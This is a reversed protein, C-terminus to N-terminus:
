RKLFNDGPRVFRTKPFFFFVQKIEKVNIIKNRRSVKPKARTKKKGLQKLRNTLNIKQSKTQKQLFAWRVILKGRLVAKAADLLSKYPQTKMTMKRSTNESERGSKMM